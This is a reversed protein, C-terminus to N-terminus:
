ACPPIGSRGDIFQLLTDINQWIAALSSGSCSGAALVSRWDGPPCSALLNGATDLAGAVSPPLTTGATRDLEVLLEVAALLDLGNSGYGRQLYGGLAAADDVVITGNGIAIPFITPEISGANSYWWDITHTCNHLLGFECVRDICEGRYGSRVCHADITCEVCTANGFCHALDCAASYSCTHNATCNTWGCPPVSLCDDTADICVKCVGDLCHAPDCAASYSCTHNATCNAWGCQPVSPCDHTVNGCPECVGGFCNTAACEAYSCHGAGDCTATKCHAAPCDAATACATHSGFILGVFGTDSQWYPVGVLVDSVDDGNVDGTFRGSIINAASGSIIFGNAGNLTTLNFVSPWAGAHGFIVYTRGRQSNWLDASIILDAVADGNVDGGYEATYGCYDGVNEGSIKVGGNAASLNLLDINAPWSPRGFLIYVRGTNSNINTASIVIDDIGDDNLDGAYALTASLYDDAVEGDITVVDPAALSTLSVVTSPWSRRGIVVYVRGAEHRGRPSTGSSSIVIDPIGDGNVDAAAIVSGSYSRNGGIFKVGRVTGNGIHSVPTTTDWPERHGYLLYTAGDDNQYAYAGVLIDQIGDGDSDGAPAISGGFGGGEGIYEALLGGDSSNLLIPTAGMTQNKRGFVIFVIGTGDRWIGIAADPFGDGNVDGLAAVSDGVQARTAGDFESAHIGDVLHPLSMNVSPWSARPRGYILYVRGRQLMAGQAGIFFDDFGDGNMDGLGALGYGAYENATKGIFRIGTTVNMTNIIIERPFGSAMTLVSLAIM